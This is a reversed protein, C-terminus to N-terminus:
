PDTRGRSTTAPERWSLLMPSAALTLPLLLFSFSVLPVTGLLMGTWGAIRAVWAVRGNWAVLGYGFAALPLAKAAAIGIPVAAESLGEDNIIYAAVIGIVAV